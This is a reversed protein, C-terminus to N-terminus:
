RTRGLAAQDAQLAKHNRGVLVLRLADIKPQDGKPRMASALRLFYEISRPNDLIPGSEEFEALAEVASSSGYVAIRAKADAANTVATRHAEPSQAHAASAVARLYDVYSQRQLVEFQKKSEAARSFWYQLAAGVLVGLLPLLAGFVASWDKM